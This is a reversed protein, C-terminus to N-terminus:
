SPHALIVQSVQKLGKHKAANLGDFAMRGEWGESQMHDYLGKKMGGGGRPMYCHDFTRATGPRSRGGSAQVRVGGRILREM